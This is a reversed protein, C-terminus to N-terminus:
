KAPRAFENVTRELVADQIRIAQLNAELARLARTLEASDLVPAVGNGGLEGGRRAQRGVLEEMGVRQGDEGLGGQQGNGQGVRQGNGEVAAAAVRRAIADIREAQALAGRGSIAIGNLSM